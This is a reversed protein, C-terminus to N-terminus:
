KNLLKVASQYVSDVTVKTLCYPESYKCRWNCNFCDLPNYLFLARNSNSHPFFYGFHGGGIIAIIHVEFLYALHTLGSDNGVLLSAKRIIEIVDELDASCLLNTVGKPLENFYKAGFKNTEGLIFIKVHNSLQTILQRYNEAPWSRILTSAFPAIVIYKESAPVKLSAINDKTGFKFDDQIIYKLEEMRDYENFSKFSIINTYHANNIKEFFSSLFHNEKQLTIKREAGSNLTIEDSMMGRDVSINLAIRFKLSTLYKLIKFRYFPNLKYKIREVFIIRAKSDILHGIQKYKDDIILFINEQSHEYKISRLFNIRSVFDGLPHSLHVFLVRDSFEVNKKQPLTPLIGILYFLINRIFIM